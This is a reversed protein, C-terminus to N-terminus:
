TERGKHKMFILSALHTSIEAKENKAFHKETETHSDKALIIKDSVVGRFAELIGYKIIMLSVRNSHEWKEFNKRDAPSSEVTLSTPQEIRLALNLDM